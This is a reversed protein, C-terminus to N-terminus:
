RSVELKFFLAPDSIRRLVYDIPALDTLVNQREASFQQLHADAIKLHAATFAELPAQLSDYHFHALWLPKDATDLIRYEQFYDRRKKTRIRGQRNKEIRVQHNDLLWQLYAQRPQREKLLSARVSIGEARLREAASRLETPLSGVPFRSSGSDRERALVQQVDQAAQELRQAQQDFLDQMDAPIRNPRFADKRTQDIFSQVNENLTQGNDITDTDNLLPQAAPRPRSPLIDHFAQETSTSAKAPAPDRPRSKTVKMTPRSPGAVAPKPAAPAPIDTTEPLLQDLQDQALQRFEGILGRVRDIELPEVKGPYQDALDKFRQDTDAYVDLLGSLTDIRGTLPEGGKPAKLLGAHRHAASAADIILQGVADRQSADVSAEGRLCLEHSMGVENAKLDWATFAPLLDRLPKAATIGASGTAELDVLSTQSLQLRAVMDQSLKLTQRVTEIHAQLAADKEIVSNGSLKQNLKAYANRQLAFWLCLNKQLHTTMRLLDHFYGDSGGKQRWEQLNNLAQQYDTILKEVQTLYQRTAQEHATGTAALMKEQATKLADNGISEQRKFTNLKAELQKRQQEKVWRQARLQSQLSKGGAGGRLRLRTDVFWKGQSDHTLLPGTEPPNGPFEIQIQQDDNEIVGYWHEGVQAYLHDDRRYVPATGFLIKELDSETPDIPTVSAKLLYATLAETTRRPVSGRVELSSYHSSPLEGSLATPDRTVSPAAPQVAAPVTAPSEREAPYPAPRRGSQRRVAARHALLLGLNLLMDGIADWEALKDGRQRAQLAQEVESIGQWIWLAAGAPGSLFNAAVSFLAWGSDRLLAWRREANSQSQRDAFEAMTQAHTKFLIGFVDGHLAKSSLQVPGAWDVSTWPESLMQASTWPSPLGVPFTYQAYKFSLTSDPLWALVSDRLEGPHHLAYVLNQASPFQLLPQDFLPRYLLCPGSEAQRPGIVFMNTVTDGETDGNRIFTLPRVVIPQAHGPTPKLWERIYAYGREDIGGIRRIKCELAILPLLAHLQRLYFYKQIAGQIPDNILKDKILQPYTQGIDVKKAMQTLYAVDLWDPVPQPPKFRLTAEYPPSNQLAFEGLTETHSDLPNPLTLGGSEFSNTITIEFSDLPLRTASPQDALIAERMRQQAFTDIAPLHYLNKNIHKYLKGLASVSRSYQDMDAATAGALWEPMAEDLTAFTDKEETGPYQALESLSSGTDTERAVSERTIEAIADLQSAILAWAMHDFFNGEPEFLRWKMSRGALREELRELLAAGLAELSAFSEYGDLTYMMVLDRERYRGTLVAVGGVTLHRAKGAADVTDIDILQVKIESLTPQQSDRQQKDPYQSVARAVHCQDADWGSVSQVDLSKRLADALEQWRPAKHGNSNWFALQRERFAVFLLPSYDNLMTAIAEISIDLHVVPSAQPDATLFHEGELYNADTDSFFLRVLAQTLSEFTMPLARLKGEAWQWRPTGILTLDPDLARDPFQKKLANRLMRAAVEDVTPGQNDHQVILNNKLQIPVRLNDTHETM